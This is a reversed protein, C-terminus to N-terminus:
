RMSRENFSSGAFIATISRRGLNKCLPVIEYRQGTATTIKAVGIPSTTTRMDTFFGVM